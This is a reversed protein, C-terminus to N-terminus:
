RQVIEAVLRVADNLSAIPAIRVAIGRLHAMLESRWFIRSLLRAILRLSAAFGNASFIRKNSCSLSRAATILRARKAWAFRLFSLKWLAGVGLIDALM